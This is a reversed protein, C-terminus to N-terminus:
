PEAESTPPTLAINVMNYGAEYLVARVDMILGARSQPHALVVPPNRQQADPLNAMEAALNELDIPVDNLTISGDADITLSAFSGAEPYTRALPPVDLDLQSEQSIASGADCGTPLAIMPLLAVLSFSRGIM